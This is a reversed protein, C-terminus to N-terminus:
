SKFQDFEAPLLHVIQDPDMAYTDWTLDLQALVEALRRVSGGKKSSAGRKLKRTRPDIYLGSVVQMLTRNSIIEQQSAIQEVVDGPANVSTALVARVSEVDDQHAKYIRYPGALYHRYYSTYEDPAYIYRVLDSISRTGDADAPALVDLWRLSLWTWLGADIDLNPYKATLPELLDTFYEAAEMRDAFLGVEYEADASILVTYQNSWILADIDATQGQRLQNLLERARIIGLGTLRRIESM